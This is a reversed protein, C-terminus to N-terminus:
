VGGGDVSLQVSCTVALKWLHGVGFGTCVCVGIVGLGAVMKKKKLRSVYRSSENEHKHTPVM